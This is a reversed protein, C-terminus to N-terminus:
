IQLSQDHAKKAPGFLKAKLGERLGRMIPVKVMARSIASRAQAPVRGYAARLLNKWWPFRGKYVRSDFLGYAEQIQASSFGPLDLVATRREKTTNVFDKILGQSICTRYLETGPYPFFISTCLNDPQCLRNIRVTEMHDALSEGPIGILNYVNVAMGHRRAMSAAKLFDDNSYNRRLVERRVRESGAELGINIKYFNAREFAAFLEEDLSQRSVRFNCGYSIANGISANFSALKDCFDFTWRKELAISEAELYIKRQPCADYISAIELVISEPSRMRVYKGAAVRRIAHNSCYTCDYPCGRGALVTIEDNPDKKIWPAWMERDPFPLIDLDRIFDRPASRSIEGDTSKLWLNSIGHPVEGGELQACLELVPYEGEGVCLADFPGRIVAGPNLTAHVGGIVYYKDPWNKKIHRAAKEIVSFQSFVATFCVIRPDFEEMYSSILRQSKEWSDSGLVLLKTQHGHARLVASIYSIGFQVKSWSRLPESSPDVGESSYIFLIKM